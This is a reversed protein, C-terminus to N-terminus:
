DGMKEKLYWEELLENILTSLSVQGENEILKIQVKKKLDEEIYITNKERM